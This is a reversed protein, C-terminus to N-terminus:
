HRASLGLQRAQEVVRKAREVVPLDLMKGRFEIAALGEALAQEYAGVIQQAEEIEEATPSFVDHVINIQAPHIVLKGQFGLQKALRAEQSLGTEDKIDIYVTDIPADIGAARSAVVLQSRAYLIELGEKSLQANVDLCYDVSGFALCKVRSSSAAIEYAHYVGAASEILPIIAISGQPLAKEQELFCLLHEVHQIDEKRNAKPLMIGHLYPSVLETLDASFHDTSLDNVRVYNVKHKNQFLAKSVLKRAVSKEGLPVSDELDYIIVDASLDQVKALKREQNGPVFMLSRFLVM